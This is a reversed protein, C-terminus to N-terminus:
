ALKAIEKRLEAAVKPDCHARLIASDSHFTEGDADEVEVASGWSARATKLKLTAVDMGLRALDVTCIFNDSFRLSVKSGGVSCAFSLRDPTIEPPVPRAGTTTTQASELS